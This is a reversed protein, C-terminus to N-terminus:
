QIDAPPPSWFMLRADSAHGGGPRDYDLVAVEFEGSLVSNLLTLDPSQNQRRARGAWHVVRELVEPAVRGPKRRNLSSELREIEQESLAFVTAAKMTM